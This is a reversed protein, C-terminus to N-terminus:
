MQTSFLLNYCSESQRTQRQFVPVGVTTLLPSPMSTGVESNRSAETDRSMIIRSRMQM